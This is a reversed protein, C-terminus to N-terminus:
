KGTARGFTRIRVVFHRGENGYFKLFNPAGVVNNVATSNQQNTLNNIGGRLAFRYGRFTFMRELHLNLDFNFPYRHSAVPGVIQGTPTQVSFPFGSRADALIPLAWNKWPLPLYAWGLLRNPVDWPVPHTGQVVQLPDVSNWDLVANSVARSHIYSALWEYQGGLSQRVTVGASDYNDRRLNGLQYVGPFSANPLPLGSPPADPDLVNIYVFGDRSRRSLFNGSILISERLRHDISASWNTARPLRLPGGGSLFVTSAPPGAPMGAADFVTTAATQDMPRGLLGLNAADRTIAFGGSVRTREGGFPAWSISARPSWAVDGVRQDWDQRIGLDLEVHGSLRWTDLLYTSQEVDPVHVRGAGRYITTSLVAGSLGVLQYGTRAFDGDYRLRNM